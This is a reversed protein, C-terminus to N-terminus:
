SDSKQRLPIYALHEVMNQKTFNKKKKKEYFNNLVLLSRFGKSIICIIPQMNTSESKMHELGVGLMM